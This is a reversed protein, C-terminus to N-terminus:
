HGGALYFFAGVGLGALAFPGAGKRGGGRVVLWLIPCLFCLVKDGTTAASQGHSRQSPTTQQEAPMLQRGVARQAVDDEAAVADDLHTINMHFGWDVAAKADLRRWSAVVPVHLLEALRVLDNSCRARLVGAGAIIGLVVSIGAVILFAGLTRM